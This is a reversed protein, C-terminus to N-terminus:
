RINVFFSCKNNADKVGLFVGLLNSNIITADIAASSPAVIATTASHIGYDGIVPTGAGVNVISAGFVCVTVQDGAAVAANMAVGVTMTFLDANVREKVSLPVTATPVVFAVLAGAAIAANARFPLYIGGEAILEGSNTLGTRFDTVQKLKASPNVIQQLTM